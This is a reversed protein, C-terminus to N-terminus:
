LIREHGHRDLVPVLGPGKGIEGPDGGGEIAHHRPAVDIDPIEDLVGSRTLARGEHTNGARVEHGHHRVQGSVHGRKYSFPRRHSKDQVFDRAQDQFGLDGAHRRRSWPESRVRRM